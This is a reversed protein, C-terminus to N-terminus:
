SKSLENELLLFKLANFCGGYQLFSKFHPFRDQTKANKKSGFYCHARFIKDTGHDLSFEYSKTGWEHIIIRIFQNEATQILRDKNLEDTVHSFLASVISKSIKNSLLLLGKVSILDIKGSRANLAVGSSEARVAIHQWNYENNNIYKDWIKNLVLNNVKPFSLSANLKYELENIFIPLYNWFQFQIRITLRNKENLSLGNWFYSISNDNVKAVVMWRIRSEHVEDSDDSGSKQFNPLSVIRVYYYEDEISNVPGYWGDEGFEKFLLEINGLIPKNSPVKGIKFTFWVRKKKLTELFLSKLNIKGEMIMNALRDAMNNKESKFDSFEKLSDVSFEPSKLFAACFSEPEEYGHDVFAAVSM